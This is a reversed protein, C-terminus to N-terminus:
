TAPTDVSHTVAGTQISENDAWDAEDNRTALWAHQSLTLLTQLDYRYKHVLKLLPLAEQRVSVKTSTLRRKDGLYLRASDEFFLHYIDRAALDLLNFVQDPHAGFPLLIKEFQQKDRQKGQLTISFSPLMDIRLRRSWTSTFSLTVGAGEHAVEWRGPKGEGLRVLEAHLCTAAIEVLRKRLPEVARYVAAPPQTLFHLWNLLQLMDHVAKGGPREKAPEVVTEFIQRIEKVWALRVWDRRMLNSGAAYELPRHGLLTLYVFERVKARQYKREVASHIDALQGPHNATFLKNEVVM